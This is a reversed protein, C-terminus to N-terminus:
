GRKLEHNEKIHIALPIPDKFFNKGCYDCVFEQKPVFFKMRWQLNISRDQM